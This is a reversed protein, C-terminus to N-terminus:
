PGSRRVRTIIWRGTAGRQMTVILREAVTQGDPARVQALITVNKAGAEESVQEIDFHRVTGDAKPNFTVTAMNGVVTLDNLRSADFFEILQQQEPSSSSCAIAPLPALLTALLLVQSRRNRNRLAPSM